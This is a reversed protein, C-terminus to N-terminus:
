DGASSNAHMELALQLKGVVLERLEKPQLVKCRGAWSLVWNGIEELGDVRFSLTVGGDPHSKCKQTHHWVTETVVRAAEPTFRIEVEYSRDGRFVAWANGFYERLDFEVPVRAPMDVMRLTKFRAVRYTQPELSDTPRAILYWASKILCLRIPHLRLTVPRPEYPSEYQGAVLKRQMLAFQITKIVEQHRSHDALKLDMVCVLQEADAMFQRLSEPSTVALKRTTPAAGGGVDLGPAKTIATALAQGLAEEETLSPVPFRYDPRVRYCGEIKDFYWPVGAFELVKLDRYVTRVTCGVEDAIGQANWRGRSQILRLIGLTRAMREAQRGRRDRDARKKIPQKGQPQEGSPEPERNKAMIKVESASGLGIRGYLDITQDTELAL